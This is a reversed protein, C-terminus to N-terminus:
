LRRVAVEVYTVFKYPENLQFLFPKKRNEVYIAVGDKYGKLQLIKRLRITCTSKRGIFIIRRSTLYVAGKDVVMIRTKREVSINRVTYYFGRIIKFTTRTGKARYGVVKEELLNARSVYHLVEGKALKVPLSSSPLTPLIGTIKIVQLRKFEIEFKLSDYDNWVANCSECVYVVRRGLLSRTKLRNLIGEV